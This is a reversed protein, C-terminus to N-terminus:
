IRALGKDSSKLHHTSGCDPNLVQACTRGGLLLMCCALACAIACLVALSGWRTALAFSVVVKTSRCLVCWVDSDSTGGTHDQGVLRPWISTSAAFCWLGVFHTCVCPLAPLAPGARLPSIGCVRTEPHRGGCLWWRRRVGWPALGPQRLHTWPGGLLCSVNYFATSALM